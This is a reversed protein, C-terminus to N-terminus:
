RALITDVFVATLAKVACCYVGANVIQILDKDLDVRQSGCREHKDLVRKDGLRVYRGILPPTTKKRCYAPNQDAKARRQWVLALPCMHAALFGPRLLVIYRKVGPSPQEIQTATYCGKDESSGMQVQGM